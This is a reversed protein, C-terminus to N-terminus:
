PLGLVFIVLTVTGAAAKAIEGFNELHRGGHQFRLHQGGSTATGYEHDRQDLNKLSVVNIGKGSGLVSTLWCKTTSIAAGEVLLLPTFFRLPVQISPNLFFKLQM